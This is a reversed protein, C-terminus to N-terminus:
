KLLKKRNLFHFGLVIGLIFLVYLHENVPVDQVDDNFGNQSYSFSSMMFFLAVLWYNYNMKM